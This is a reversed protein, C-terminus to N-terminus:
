QATHEAIFYLKEAYSADKKYTTYILALLSPLQKHECIIPPMDLWSLAAIPNDLVKQLAETDCDQWL